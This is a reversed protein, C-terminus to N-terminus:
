VLIGGKGEGGRTVELQAAHVRPEVSDSPARPLRQTSQAWLHPELTVSHQRLGLIHEPRLTQRSRVDRRAEGRAHGRRAAPRATTAQGQTAHPMGQRTWRRRADATAPLKFKLDNNYLYIIINIFYTAGKELM